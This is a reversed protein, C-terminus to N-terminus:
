KGICSRLPYLVALPSKVDHAAHATLRSVHERSFFHNNSMLKDAYIMSWPFLGIRKWPGHNICIFLHRVVIKQACFVDCPKCNVGCM